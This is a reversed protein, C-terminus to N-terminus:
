VVSTARDSPPETPFLLERQDNYVSFGAKSQHTQRFTARDMRWILSLRDRHDATQRIASPLAAYGLRTPIAASRQNAPDCYIEATPSGFAMFSAFMCGLVAETAYGQGVADSRLWYGFNAVDPAVRWAISVSGLVRHHGAPFIGFALHKRDAFDRRFRHIREIKKEVPEPEQHAWPMWPRLSELSSDVAEKLAGADAPEWCRLQLRPTTIFYVAKNM